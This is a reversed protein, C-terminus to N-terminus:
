LENSGDFATDNEDNKSDEFDSWSTEMTIMIPM